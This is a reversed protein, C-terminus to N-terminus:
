PWREPVVTQGTEAARYAAEVLSLTNFNDAGHTAAPHGARRCALWDRQFSVVSEQIVAWPQRSWAPWDPAVTRCERTGDPQHLELLFDQQLRITGGPGEIELLSQPFPDDALISAYSCDVVCTTGATHRLLMTATDEGKIDPNIRATECSLRGVDGFLARAIDLVHIGLDQIIFRPLEALYPQNAFVDFGSRYSVRGFFPKGVVGDAVLGVVERIASQWRFNEHITLSVGQTSCLEILRRAAELSGAFPKQCIVDVGHRAAAEVLEAHAPTPAAIDVFDLACAEFLAEADTFGQDIGFDQQFAAVNASARDCVAVIRAGELDHWAQMQNRAFFGCGILAGNLLNKDSGNSM